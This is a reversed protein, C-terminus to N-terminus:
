FGKAMPYPLDKSKWVRIYDIYFTAPLDAPDPLGVWTEMIECDFIVHLATTFYDNDRSFVERGDVFWKMESPTWLFGYVHFDSHFDFPVRLAASKRPLPAPKFNVLSEMYPTFFRHVTAFFVRDVEKQTPKGFIEFIDIEESFGGERYKAPPDLPDYLWFANCVGAKMSKCRAEFYGYRTRKKSKVIATTFKDYGRVKNEVSIEGPQQVRATLQLSGDKVTVNDRSFYAPKRGHWAPNFDWWKGADLGPGNFEDSFEPNFVWSEGLPCIPSNQPQAHAIALSLVGLSILRASGSTVKRGNFNFPKM